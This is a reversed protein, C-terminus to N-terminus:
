KQLERVPRMEIYDRCGEPSLHMRPAFKEAREYGYVHPNVTDIKEM